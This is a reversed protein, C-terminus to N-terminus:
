RSSIRTERLATVTAGVPTPRSCFTAWADMLARRKELADGRRYARETADGSVHALAAEALERPFNTSEGCWDRFTSRFGHVTLDRRGLRKLTHQFVPKSFKGDRGPFVFATDGVRYTAMERLIALARDCLPVRHERGAKMKNAPIIWVAADLDIEDWTANRVESTRAACLVLYEFARPAVGDIKRLQEMFEPTERWPLAAHHEIQRKAKPLLFEIHDAFRAPNPVNGDRFGAVACWSLIAEIRGRLRSATEPATQWVRELAKVVHGTDIQRVDIKGLTPFVHARLSTPWELAHQQNRWRARHATIYGLAAQEFTMMKISAALRAARDTDRQTIPDIGDLVLERCRRARERADKLGVTILSGLGMSRTRGALTYRFIWSRSTGGDKADTIQLWLGGGDCRLGPTTRRLDAGSLRGIGKGMEVEM